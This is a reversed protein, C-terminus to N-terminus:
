QSVPKVRRLQQNVRARVTHVALKFVVRYEVDAVTFGVVAVTGRERWFAHHHVVEVVPFIIGRRARRPAIGDNVFRMHFPQRIQVRRDGFLHAPGIFREPM